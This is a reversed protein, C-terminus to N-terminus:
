SSANGGVQGAASVLAYRIRVANLYEVCDKVLWAMEACEGLLTEPETLVVIQLASALMAVAASQPSDVYGACTQDLRRREAATLHASIRPQRKLSWARPLEATPELAHAMRVPAKALVQQMTRDPHQDIYTLMRDAPPFGTPTTDLFSVHSTRSIRGWLGLDILLAARAAHDHLALGPLRGSPQVCLRSLRTILADGDV